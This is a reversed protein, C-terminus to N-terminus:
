FLYRRMSINLLLGLSIFASLMASGGYSFLPLPVGIVPALGLVMAVNIAAPWFLTGVLGVALLAGFADKSSSAIWLGWLLMALFLSLVLVSGIFGWEEALVSFIFDTHQTPLFRLQTQTGEMWGRGFLGGAGIAIRSQMAQYGSSLPDREPDVFDLIRQQQYPKLGYSWLATLAGVGTAAIGGWALGSIRVFPLFTLAVLLTLLAVGMDKQAIILAVPPAAILIPRILQRLGANAEPPNRHFHRAMVLVLTIKAFESPQIRGEFLWARAGRTEPAVILTAVLLLLSGAYLLLAFREFHRYDIMLIVILVVSCFGVVLGQRRVIDPLGGEVGSNSASTLNVFAFMILIAAISLFVWDFYQLSRRDIKV